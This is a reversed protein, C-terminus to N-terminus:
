KLLSATHVHCTPSLITPGSGNPDADNQKIQIPMWRMDIRIRCIRIPILELYIYKKM